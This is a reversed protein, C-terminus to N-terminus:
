GAPLLSEAKATAADLIEARDMKLLYRQREPECREDHSPEEVRHAAHGRLLRRSHEDHLLV